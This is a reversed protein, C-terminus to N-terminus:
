VSIAPTNSYERVLEIQHRELDAGSIRLADEVLDAPLVSERTGSVKSFSQQMAVIEKIHDIDGSLLAIEKIMESQEAALHDALVYLYHLLQKGKPDRTLFEALDSEHERLLTVAKGLNAIKWQHMRDAIISSSVNVSNLVNGVNHLADAAVEAKDALHTTERIQRRLQRRETIDEKIAVFHSINGAADRIPAISASEWYLEGNKKKNCFEGNWVEGRLITEWMCKYFAPTHLGSKMIRPNRGVAEAVGYGTMEVFNPNVYEIQGTIDTIVIAAHAHEVARWLKRLDQESQKRETIDQNAGLLQVTRGQADKTISIHVLVHRVAGDRRLIRAEVQSIYDPDNAALAKAIEAGVMPADDPHVYKRAFAEASMTDGGELESTTGHLAYYRDSFHFLGSAVDYQWDVLRALKMAHALKKESERLAKQTRICDSNDPPPLQDIRIDV